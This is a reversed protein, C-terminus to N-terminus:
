DAVTEGLLVERYHRVPVPGMAMMGDMFDKLVFGDGRAAKVDRYLGMVQDYGLWYSTIQPASTISRVWMNRAFQDDQLAQSKVFRIVEDREMGQTHVRIDVITRATNELQKKLHALRDLPGGWGLDLMLRECFTGWGETYVGDAFLSRVKHPQRAAIKLQTYHGPVMEHPTIMVNFHHNFDRFFAARQAPTADNSPTPLYFLTDAEPAYPGAPYVGGVSQGIFYSPSRGVWLTRPDPLTIVDHERTFAFARDVLTRYDAVFADVSDARDQAVREFLRGILAVDDDPPAEGPLVEGWVKRGYAATEARKEELAREARALVQDVPEDIGNVLRFLEAYREPGLRPSGTAREGLVSLDDALADLAEAAATGAKAMEAALDETGVGAEGAQGSQGAEGSSAGQLQDAAAAFGERYFTASAAAQGSAILAHESSVAAPDAAALTTRAQEVLRPLLAARATAAALREAAPRDERVLLFVNANSAIGTWFLPDTVPERVTEYSFLERRAQRLLLERDLRRDLDQGGKEKAAAAAQELREVTERNYAVWADIRETTLDELERDHSHLGAATARSPYFAFYRDLYGDVIPDTAAAASDTSATETAAPQRPACAVALLLVSLACVPVRRARM